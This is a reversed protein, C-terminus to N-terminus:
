YSQNKKKMKYNMIFLIGAIVFPITITLVILVSM